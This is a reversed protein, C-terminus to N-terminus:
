PPGCSKKPVSVSVMTVLSWPLVPEPAASLSVSLIRQDHLTNVAHVGAVRTPLICSEPGHRAVCNTNEAHRMYATARATDGDLEIRVVRDDASTTVFAYVVSDDDPDLYPRDVRAPAKAFTCYGCRDRCLETIHRELQNLGEVKGICLAVGAEKALAEITQLLPNQM